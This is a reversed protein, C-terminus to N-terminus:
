RSRDMFHWYTLGGVVITVLLIIIKYIIFIKLVSLFVVVVLAALPLLFGSMGRTRKKGRFGNWWFVVLFVLMFIAFVKLAVGM